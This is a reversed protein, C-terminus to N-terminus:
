KKEANASAEAKMIETQLSPMVDAQYTQFKKMASKGGPSGYFDALAKLEDATFNKVMADKIAKTLADIDLHKMLRTKFSDRQEEPLNKAMQETMDSMMETPPTAKLYRAAEQERNAPTDELAWAQGVALVLLSALIKKM